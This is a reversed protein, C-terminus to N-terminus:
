SPISLEEHAIELTEIAVENTEANLNPGSWRVPWADRFNFRLVEEGADNLLVVSMSRRSVKGQLTEQMWNWLSLDSTLGRKLVINTFKAEGPLKRAGSVKDNGPRYDVIAVDAEIGCVELFASSVIGDIEVIFRASNFPDGRDGTPMSSTYRFRQIWFLVCSRDGIESPCQGAESAGNIM